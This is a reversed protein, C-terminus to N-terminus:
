CCFLFSSSNYSLRFCFTSSLAKGSVKTREGLFSAIENGAGGFIANVRFSSGSSVGFGEAELILVSCFSLVSGITYPQIRTPNANNLLFLGFLGKSFAVEKGALSEDL